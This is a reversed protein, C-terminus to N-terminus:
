LLYVNCTARGLYILFWDLGTRCLLFCANLAVQGLIWLISHGWSSMTSTTHYLVDWMLRPIRTLNVITFMCICVNYVIYRSHVYYTSCILHYFIFYFDDLNKWAISSTNKFSLDQVHACSEQSLLRFILIFAYLEKIQLVLGLRLSILLIHYNLYFALCFLHRQFNLYLMFYFYPAKTPAYVPIVCHIWLRKLTVILNKNSWSKM